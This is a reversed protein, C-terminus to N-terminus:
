ETSTRCPKGASSDALTRATTAQKSGPQVVAIVCPTPSLRSVVLVSVNKAPTESNDQYVVPVISGIAKGKRVRFEFKDGVSAFSTTVTESFRLQTDRKAKRLTISDRADDYDIIVSWGDVSGKCLESGFDEGGSDVISMCNSQALSVFKSTAAASTASATTTGVLGVIVATAGVLRGIRLCLERGVNM